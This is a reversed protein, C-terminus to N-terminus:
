INEKYKCQKYAEKRRIEIAVTDTNSMNRALVNITLAIDFPVNISNGCVLNQGGCLLHQIQMVPKKAAELREEMPYLNLEPPQEVFAM